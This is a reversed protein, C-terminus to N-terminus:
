ELEINLEGKMKDLYFLLSSIQVMDPLIRKLPRPLSLKLKKDGTYDWKINLINKTIKASIELTSNNEMRINKASVGKELWDVPIGQLLIPDNGVKEDVYFDLILNIWEAAAIGNPSDGVSGSFSLPSIGEAWGQMNTINSKLFEIVKPVKDFQETYRYCQAIQMTGYSGYSNWPQFFLLGGNFLYNQELLELTKRIPQYDPIYLELPYFANLNFFMSANEHQNISAPLYNLDDSLQSIINDVSQKLRITENELRETEGRKGVVEGLKAVLQIGHIAWFNDVFYNDKRWSMSDMFPGNGEPLLVNEFGTEEGANSAKKKIKLLWDAIRRLASYKEGLWNANRNFYYHHAVASILSGASLWQQNIGEVGEEQVNELLSNLVPKVHTDGFGLRDLAKLQYVAGPLWTEKQLGAGIYIEENDVDTLLRLTIASNLFLKNVLDDSTDVSPLNEVEEEWEFELDDADVDLQSKNNLTILINPTSRVPFSSAWSPTNSKCREKSSIKHLQLQKGSHGNKAPLVLSKIPNESIYINPLEGLSLKNAKNDWKLEHIQTLGDQDFPTLSLLLQHNAFGKLVTISLNESDSDKDKDAVCEYILTDDNIEWKVNIIPYGEDHLDITVKGIESSYVPENNIFTGFILTYSAKNPIVGGRHDIMPKISNNLGGIIHYNRHDSNGILPLGAFGHRGEGHPGLQEIVWGPLVLSNKGLSFYQKTLWYRNLTKQYAELTIPDFPDEINFLNKALDL